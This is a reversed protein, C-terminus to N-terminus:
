EDAQEEIMAPQTEMEPTNGTATTMIVNIFTKGKKTKQEKFGIKWSERSENGIVEMIEDIQKIVNDSKTIVNALRGAGDKLTIEYLEKSGDDSVIHLYGAFHGFGDFERALGLVEAREAIASELNSEFYKREKVM